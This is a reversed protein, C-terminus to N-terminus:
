SISHQGASSAHEPRRLRGVVQQAAIQVAEWVTAFPPAYSLDLASIAGVGHEFVTIRWDPQLRRARSAASMGAAGGGIVVLDGIPEYEAAL